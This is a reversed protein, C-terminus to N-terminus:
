RRTEIQTDVTLQEELDGITNFIKFFMTYTVIEERGERDFSSTLRPKIIFDFANSSEDVIRAVGSRVIVGAIRDYIDRVRIDDRHTNNFFQMSENSLVLRPKKRRFKESTLLPSALMQNTLTEAMRVADATVFKSSLRSGGTVDSTQTTRPAACAAVLGMTFVVALTKLLKM